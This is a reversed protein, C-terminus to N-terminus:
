VSSRTVHTLPEALKPRAINDYLGSPFLYQIARQRNTPNELFSQLSDETWNQPHNKSSDTQTNTEPHDKQHKLGMASALHRMSIGQEGCLQVIEYATYNTSAKYTQRISSIEKSM